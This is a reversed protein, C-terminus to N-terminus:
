LNFKNAEGNETRLRERILGTEGDAASGANALVSFQSCPCFMFFWKEQILSVHNKTIHRLPYFVM